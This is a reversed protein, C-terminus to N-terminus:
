PQDAAGQARVAAAEYLTREVQSYAVWLFAALGVIIPACMLLPLRAHLSQRPSLLRALPATM